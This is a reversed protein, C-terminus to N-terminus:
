IKTCVKALHDIHEPMSKSGIVINDIYVQINPMYRFLSSPMQQSIESANKLGFPMFQFKYSIYKCRFATQDLVHESLRM